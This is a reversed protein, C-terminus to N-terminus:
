CEDYCFGCLKATMAGQMVAVARLFLLVDESKVHVVLFLDFHSDALVCVVSLQVEVTELM